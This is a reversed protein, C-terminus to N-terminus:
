KELVLLFNNKQLQEFLSHIKDFLLLQQFFILLVSNPNNSLVGLSINSKPIKIWISWARWCPVTLRIRTLKFIMTIIFWFRSCTITNILSYLSVRQTLKKTRRCDCLFAALHCSSNSNYNMYILIGYM